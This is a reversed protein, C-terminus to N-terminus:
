VLILQIFLFISVTALLDAISTELPVVFNDPDLGKKFTIVAIGYSILFIIPFTLLNSPLVILFFNKLPISFRTGQSLVFGSLAYFIHLIFAAAEIPIFNKFADKITSIKNEFEGIFLKTTTTAGTIAGINGLASMLVPYVILIGPYNVIENILGTLILGSLSGLL